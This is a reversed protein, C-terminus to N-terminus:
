MPWTLRVIARLDSRYNIRRVRVRAEDRVAESVSNTNSGGGQAGICMSHNLAMMVHTINSKSTGFFLLDGLDPVTDLPVESAKFMTYLSQSSPGHGDQDALLGHDMLHDNVFGSCDWGTGPADVSGSGGGWIYPQGRDGLLSHFLIERNTAM